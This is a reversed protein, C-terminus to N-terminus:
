SSTCSGVTGEVDPPVCAIFSVISLSVELYREILALGPEVDDVGVDSCM